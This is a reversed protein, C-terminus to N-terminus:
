TKFPVWGAETRAELPGFRAKYSMKRCGEIFYGLYVYPLKRARAQAVHDLVMYTGVSRHGEAPDFFSYVMSLGDQLVDTLAVATLPGPRGDPLTMRYECMHTEVASDEVMAVYDFMTMESMGGGTHRTDLYRRILRFQEETAWPDVIEPRLDRNRELIRQFSRSPEFADTLIRVSVCANCGECSPRYAINQSRRFGLHTLKDNVQRAHQGSLRTFVKQEM